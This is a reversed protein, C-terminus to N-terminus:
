RMSIYDGLSGCDGRRRWWRIALPIAIAAAIAIIVGRTLWWNREGPPAPIAIIPPSAGEKVIFSGPLGNVEISYAGAEGQSTTFTVTESGGGVLSVEKTEAVIGNIKLTATYSGDAEGANALFVSITVAEGASVELPSISLSSLTFAASATPTVPQPPSPTVLLPSSSSTIPPPPLSDSFAIVAFTSFHDIYASLTDSEPDVEFELEQWEGAGEGYYAIVLEEEAVGDPIDAPDYSWTMTVPPDFTAGDPGLQYPLGIISADEPPDPVSEAAVFEVDTLPNGEGDLATVEHPIIIHIAEDLSTFEIVDPAFFATISMDRVVGVETPNHKGITDWEVFHYGEEPVAEIKFTIGSGIEFDHPYEDPTFGDIEITGGSPSVDVTIIKTTM